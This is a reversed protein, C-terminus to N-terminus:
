INVPGSFHINNDDDKDGVDNVDELDDDNDESDDKLLEEMNHKSRVNQVAEMVEDFGWKERNFRLIMITEFLEYGMNANNNNYVMNCVSWLREVDATSCGIFDCPLYEEERADCNQLSILKYLGEVDNDSDEDSIEEQLRQREREIAITRAETNNTNNNRDHLREIIQKNNGHSVHLKQVTPKELETMTHPLKKQLKVVASEFHVDQQEILNNVAADNILRETPLKYNDQQDQSKNSIEVLYDTIDTGKSLTLHKEQLAKTAVYIPRFVRLVKNVTGYFTDSVDMRMNTETYVQKLDKYMKKFRRVM